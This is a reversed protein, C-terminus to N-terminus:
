MNHKKCIQFLKTTHVSHQKNLLFCLTKNPPVKVFGKLTFSYETKVECFMKTISYWVRIFSVSSVTLTTRRTFIRADVATGTACDTRLVVETRVRSCIRSWASSSSEPIREVTRAVSCHKHKSMGFLAHQKM